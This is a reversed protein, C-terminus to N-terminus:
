AGDGAESAFLNRDFVWADDPAMAELATQLAPIFSSPDNLKEKELWELLKDEEIKRASACAELMGTGRRLLEEKEPHKDGRTQVLYAGYAALLPSTESEPGIKSLLEACTNLVDELPPEVRMCLWVAQSLYATAEEDNDSAGLNGLVTICRLWARVRAFDRAAEFLLTRQRKADGQRGAALAM